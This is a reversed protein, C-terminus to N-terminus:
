RSRPEIIGGDAASEKSPDCDFIGKDSTWTACPDLHGSPAEWAPIEPSAVVRVCRGHEALSDPPCTSAPAASAASQDVEDDLAPILVVHSTVPAQLLTPAGSGCAAFAVTAGIGMLAGRVVTPGPFHPGGQRLDGSGWV